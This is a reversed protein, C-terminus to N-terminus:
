REPFCNTLKKLVRLLLKITAPSKSALGIYQPLSIEGLPFFGETEGGGKAHWCHFTSISAKGKMGRMVIKNFFTYVGGKQMYHYGTINRGRLEM